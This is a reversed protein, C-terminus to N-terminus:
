KYKNWSGVPRAGDKLSFELEGMKQPLHFTLYKIEFLKPTQKQGNRTRRIVLGCQIEM